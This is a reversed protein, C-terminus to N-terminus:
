FQPIAGRLLRKVGSPAINRRDKDYVRGAEVSRGLGASRTQVVDGRAAAM